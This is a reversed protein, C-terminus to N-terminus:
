RYNSSVHATIHVRQQIKNEADMDIDAEIKKTTTDFTTVNVTGTAIYLTNEIKTTGGNINTEYRGNTKKDDKQHLLYKGM